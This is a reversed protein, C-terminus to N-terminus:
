TVRNWKPVKVVRKKKFNEALFEFPVVPKNEGRMELPIITGATLGCYFISDNDLIGSYNTGKEDTDYANKTKKDVLVWVGEGNGTTYSEENEPINAKIYDMGKEEAIQMYMKRLEESNRCSLIPIEVGFNDYIRKQWYTIEKVEADYITNKKKM